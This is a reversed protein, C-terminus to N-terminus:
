SEKEKINFYFHYFYHIYRQNAAPLTTSVGHIAKIRNKMAALCQEASTPLPDVEVRDGDGGESGQQRDRAAAEASVM